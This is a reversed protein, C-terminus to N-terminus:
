RLIVPAFKVLKVTVNSGVETGDIAGDETGDITGDNVGTVDGTVAGSIIERTGVTAGLGESEVDVPFLALEAAATM